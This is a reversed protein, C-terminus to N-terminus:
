SRQEKKKFFLFYIVELIGATNLILIAVFWGTQLARAASWLAAGKWLLSWVMLLVLGVLATTSSVGLASAIAVLTQDEM